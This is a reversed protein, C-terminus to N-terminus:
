GFLSKSKQAPAAAAAGNLRPAGAKGAAAAGKVRNRVLGVNKEAWTDVFSATEAQARIEATTMRDKARFFKDIVNEERTEGTAEYVNTAENKKTKDVVQKIVGALIQQGLLDMIMQAKTPVEKKAESDYVNVVKEETDLESIEKGVTLLALSNAALYGPLYIKEGDKEYYNKGGKATGSSMWLTERYDQGSSTKAGLVLGLAGSSAVTVYALTVNFTYLGSDLVRSGGVSDKENAISQDSALNKLLSM